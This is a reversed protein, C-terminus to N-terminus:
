RHSLIRLQAMLHSLGQLSLYEGLMPILVEETAFLANIVILGSSPPCDFLVIDQDDLQGDLAKKLRQGHSLKKDQIREIEALRMNAPVLYLNERVKRRKSELSAGDLLVEDMGPEHGVVGLMASLQAQPDLDLVTVRKGQLALGHALNAAVTTKGVGGKQNIIAITRM